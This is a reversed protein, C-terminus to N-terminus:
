REELEGYLDEKSLKCTQVCRSLAERKKEAEENKQQLVISERSREPLGGKLFDETAPDLSQAMARFEKFSVQGDGNLDLMSIMMDIEGDTVHEGMMVLIHKLEAVGIYGNKDLDCLVFARQIAEEKFPEDADTDVSTANTPLAVEDNQELVYSTMTPQDMPFAAGKPAEFTMAFHAKGSEM